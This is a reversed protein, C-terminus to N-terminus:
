QVPKLVFNQLTNAFKEALRKFGAPNPHLENAWDQPKLLGQTDVVYFHNEPRGALKLLMMRYTALAEHVIKTGQSINWKCYDISPKLWPGACLPHIGSPIPFDYCHSIIPVNPALRDRFAFLDLYCAEIMNLAKEFRDQNLGLSKSDNYNLFICFQDGAIDNGGASFLIADPKEDLWYSKDNLADIMRKQKPLSMSVTAAEGYHALNIIKPPTDGIYKLQEIIDTRVFPLGNGTLPYDFWSDGAALLVLPRQQNKISLYETTLLSTKLQMIDAKHAQIRATIDNDIRERMEAQLFDHNEM